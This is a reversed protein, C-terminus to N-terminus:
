KKFKLVRVIKGLTDFIFDDVTNKTSKSKKIGYDIASKLVIPAIAIFFPNQIIENM